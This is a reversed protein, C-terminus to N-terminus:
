PESVFAYDPESDVEADEPYPQQEEAEQLIPEEKALFLEPKQPQQEPSNFTPDNLM